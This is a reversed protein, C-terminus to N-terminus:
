QLILKGKENCLHLLCVFCTSASLGITNDNTEVSKVLNRFDASVSYNTNENKIHNNIDPVPLKANKINISNKDIKEWLRSKIKRVDVIRYLREIKNQNMKFDTVQSKDSLSSAALRTGINLDAVENLDHNVEFNNDFAEENENYENYNNQNLENKKEEVVINEEINSIGEALILRSPNTFQSLLFSKKYNFYEIFKKRKKANKYKNAEANPKNNKKKKIDKKIFLSSLLENEQEGADQVDKHFFNKFDFLKQEKKPKIKGEKKVNGVEWDSKTKNNNVKINQLVNIDGGGIKELHDKLEGPKYMVLSLNNNNNYNNSQIGFPKINNPEVDGYNSNVDNINYNFNSESNSEYNNDAGEFGDNDFLDNEQINNIRKSFTSKSDSRKMVPEASHEIEMQFQTLFEKEQSAKETLDKKRIATRQNAENKDKDKDRLSTNKFYELDSCLGLEPNELDLDFTKQFNFLINDLVLNSAKNNTNAQESEIMLFDPKEKQNTKDIVAEEKKQEDQKVQNEKFDSTSGELVLDLKDNIDLCFQLLGRANIQSFMNTTQKFLPDIQFELDYEKLNLKEHNEEIHKNKKKKVVENGKEQNDKEEDQNRHLGGLIKFMDTHVSDVRYSYVHAFAELGNSATQWSSEERQNLINPLNDLYETNIEFANKANIKKHFTM